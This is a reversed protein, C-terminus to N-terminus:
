LTFFHELEIDINLDVLQRKLTETSQEIYDMVATFQDPTLDDSLLKNYMTNIISLRCRIEERSTPM